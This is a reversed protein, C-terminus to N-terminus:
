LRPGSCYRLWMRLDLSATSMGTMALRLPEELAAPDGVGFFHLLGAGVRELEVDIVDGVVEIGGAGGDFLDVAVQHLFDFGADLNGDGDLQPGVETGHAVHGAAQVGRAGVRQHEEVAEILGIEVQFREFYDRVQDEAIRMLQRQPEVPDGREVALDAGIKARVPPTCQAVSTTLDMIAPALTAM